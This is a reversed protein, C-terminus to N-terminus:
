RRRTGSAGHDISANAYRNMMAAFGDVDSPLRLNWNWLPCAGMDHTTDRKWTRHALPQAGQRRHPLHRARRRGQLPHDEAEDEPVDEGYGVFAIGQWICLLCSVDSRANLVKCFRPISGREIRKLSSTARKKQGDSTWFSKQRGSAKRGHKGHRRQRQEAGGDPMRAASATSTGVYRWRRALASEHDAHRRARQLEHVHRRRPRVHLLTCHAPRGRRPRAAAARRRRGAHPRRERDVHRHSRRVAAGIVVATREVREVRKM